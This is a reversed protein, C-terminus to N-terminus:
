GKTTENESAEPAVSMGGYRALLEAQATIQAIYGAERLTTGGEQTVGQESIKITAATGDNRSIGVVVTVEYM